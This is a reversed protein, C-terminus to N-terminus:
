QGDEAQRLASLQQGHAEALEWASETIHQWYCRSRRLTYLLGAIDGAERQAPIVHLQSVLWGSTDTIDDALLDIKVQDLQAKPANESGDGIGISSSNGPAGKASPVGENIQPM